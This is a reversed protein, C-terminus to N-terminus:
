SRRRPAQVPRALELNIQSERVTKVLYSIVTACVALALLGLVFAMIVAALIAALITGIISAVLAFYMWPLVQEALTPKPPPPPPPAPAYHHHEHVHVVQAGPEYGPLTNTPHMRLYEVIAPLRDAQDM